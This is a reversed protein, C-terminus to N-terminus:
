KGEVKKDFKNVCIDEDYNKQIQAYDNYHNVQYVIHKQFKHLEEFHAALSDPIEVEINFTAM